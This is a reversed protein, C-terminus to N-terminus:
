PYASAAALIISFRLWACEVTKRAETPRAYGLTHKLLNALEQLASGKPGKLNMAAASLDEANLMRLIRCDDALLDHHSQWIVLICDHDTGQVNHADTSNLPYCRLNPEM